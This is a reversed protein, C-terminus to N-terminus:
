KILPNLLRWLPGTLRMPSESLALCICDESAEAIPQHKLADDAYAFDGRRYAGTSDTFAGTLVLTYEAGTHTHQPISGGAAIKLMSLRAGAESCPLKIERVRPLLLNWKLTELPAGLYDRLPQPIGNSPAPGARRPAPAPERGNLKALVQDLAADDIETPDVEDLLQGGVAEYRGVDARCLPCLALHTAVVLAAAESLSGAAYAMLLADEPHRSPLAPATVAATGERLMM